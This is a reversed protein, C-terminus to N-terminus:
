VLSRSQLPRGTFNFVGTSVEKKMWELFNRIPVTKDADPPLWAVYAHGTVVVPFPAILRGQLIENSITPFGGIGVGVGDIIAQLSVHYHDYRQFRKPRLDKIKAASLWREWESVRTQSSIFDHKDLDKLKRLPHQKLLAPAAILTLEEEFLPIQEFYRWEAKELPGRRILIDFGSLPKSEVSNATAVTIEIGPHLAHFAPLRPILWRMAFTTQANVRVIRNGPTKGFRVAADGMRDFAASIEAAFARAHDTAVSRRGELAFLPQGLWDELHSIQRSVAGHTIGLEEAAARLSSTRAATEFIRLSNLPPLHRKKM